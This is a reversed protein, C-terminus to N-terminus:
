GRWKSLRIPRPLAVNRPKSSLILLLSILQLGVAATILVSDNSTRTMSLKLVLSIHRASQFPKTKRGFYKFCLTNLTIM